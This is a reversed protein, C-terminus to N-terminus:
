AKEEADLFIDLAVFTRYRTDSRIFDRNADRLLRDIQPPAESDKAEIVFDLRTLYHREEGNGRGVDVIESEMEGVFFKVSM